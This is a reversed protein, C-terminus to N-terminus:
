KQIWCLWHTRFFPLFDFFKYLVPHIKVVKRAVPPALTLRFRHIKGEPFLKRIRNYKIGRVDENAPNDYFFDYWLVGGGKKVWYWMRDALYDQYDDNLISSFVMSQYIIDFRENEFDLRSADGEILTVSEPLIKRSSEIRDHLLDNGVLYHPSFGLKIFELLNMGNGCGIELLKKEKLPVLNFKLFVKIIKKELEHLMLYTQPALISYREESITKRKEYRMKIQRIEEEFDFIKSSKNM